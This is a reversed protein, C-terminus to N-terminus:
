EPVAFADNLNQVRHVQKTDKDNELTVITIIGRWALQTNVSFFVLLDKFDSNYSNKKKHNGRAWLAM